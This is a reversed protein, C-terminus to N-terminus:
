RIYYIGWTEGGGHAQFYLCGIKILKAVKRKPKEEARHEISFEDKRLIQRTHTAVTLASTGSYPRTYPSHSTWLM